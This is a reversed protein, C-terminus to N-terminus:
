YYCDNSYFFFEETLSTYLAGYFAQYKIRKTRATTECFHLDDFKKLFLLYFISYPDRFFIHFSHPPVAYERRPGFLCRVVKDCSEM